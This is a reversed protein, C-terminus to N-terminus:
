LKAARLARARAETTELIATGLGLALLNPDVYGDVEPRDGRPRVSAYAALQGGREWVFANRELDTRSWAEGLDDLSVGIEAQFHADYAAMLAHVAVADDPRVPRMAFEPPSSTM